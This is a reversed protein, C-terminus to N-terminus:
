MFSGLDGGRVLGRKRMYERLLESTNLEERGRMFRRFGALFFGHDDDSSNAALHRMLEDYDHGVYSCIPCKVM